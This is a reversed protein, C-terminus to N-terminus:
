RSTTWWRTTSRAQWPVCCLVRSVVCTYSLTHHAPSLLPRTGAVIKRFLAANESPASGRIDDIALPRLGFDEPKIVTRTIAGDKVVWAQTPGCPSIEDLGEDSHVVM